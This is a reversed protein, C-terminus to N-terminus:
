SRLTSLTPRLITAGAPIAADDATYQIGNAVTFDVANASAPAAVGFVFLVSLGAVALVATVRSLRTV